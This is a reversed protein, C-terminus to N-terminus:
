RNSQWSRLTLVMFIVPTVVGMFFGYGSFILLFTATLVLFYRRHLDKCTWALGYLVTLLLPFVQPAPNHSGLYMEYHGLGLFFFIVFVATQAGSSIDRRELDSRM